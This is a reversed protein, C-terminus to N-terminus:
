CSPQSINRNPRPNPFGRGVHYASAPRRVRMQMAIDWGCEMICEGRGLEECSANMRDGEDKM